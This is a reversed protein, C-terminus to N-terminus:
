QCLNLKRAAGEGRCGLNGGINMRLGFRLLHFSCSPSSLRNEHTEADRIPKGMSTIFSLLM